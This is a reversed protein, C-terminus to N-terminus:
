GAKNKAEIWEKDKEFIKEAARELFYDRDIDQWKCYDDIEDLVAKTLRVRIQEKKPPEPPKTILPM